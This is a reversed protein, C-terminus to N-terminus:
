QFEVANCYFAIDESESWAMMGDGRVDMKFHRDEELNNNLQAILDEVKKTAAELTRFVGVFKPSEPGGSEYLVYVNGTIRRQGGTGSMQEM